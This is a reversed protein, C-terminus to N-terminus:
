LIRRVGYSRMVLLCIQKDTFKGDIIGANTNAKYPPVKPKQEQQTIINAIPNFYEKLRNNLWREFETLIVDGSVFSVDKTAKYFSKRLIKPLRKVASTLNETSCITSQYDM